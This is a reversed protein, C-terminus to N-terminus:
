PKGSLDNSIRRSPERKSLILKKVRAWAIKIQNAKETTVEHQSYRAELFGDTLEMLANSDKALQPHIVQAYEYPTQSAQRPYGAEKGRRVLAQYFFIVQQRPMMRHPNSFRWEPTPLPPVHLVRVKKLGANVVAALGKQANRANENLWRWAQMLRRWPALNGLAAFLARNQRFYQFLAVGLIVLFIGWFLVSRLGDWWPIDLTVPLTPEPTEIPAAPQNDPTPATGGGGGFLLSFLRFLLFVPLLIIGIIFEVITRLFGLVVWLTDLFGLSYSTPLIFSLVGLGIIFALSYFAWRPVLKLSVTAHEYRWAALLASLNTQSSLALGFIFFLVVNVVSPPSIPKGQWITIRDQKLFGALIVMFIGITLTRTLFRNHVERCNSPVNNDEVSIGYLSATERARTLNKVDIRAYEPTQEYGDLESLDTAYFTSCIWIIVLVFLGAIYEGTFFAQGFNEQWATFDRLLTDLGHALELVIKILALLVVWEAGRAFLWETSLPPKNRTVRFTLLAELTVIGGLVPLLDSISIFQRLFQTLTTTLFFMMLVILSHSVVTAWWGNRRSNEVVIV